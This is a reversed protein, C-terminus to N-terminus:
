GATRRRRCRGPGAAPGRAALGGVQDDAATLVHGDGARRTRALRRQQVHDAQEVPRRAAVPTSPTSEEEGSGRRAASAPGRIPKTNWADVQQRVPGRHSFTLEGLDVAADSPSGALARAISASSRTPRACRGASGVSATPRRAAAPRWRGRARRRVRGAARRRASRSGPCRSWRRLKDPRSAARCRSPAVSSTMVCLGATAPAPWLPPDGDAIPHQGLLRSSGPGGPHRPEGAPSGPAGCAAALRRAPRGRRGPQGRAVQATLRQGPQQGAGPASRYQRHQALTSPMPPNMVAM